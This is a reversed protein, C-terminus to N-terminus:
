LGPSHLSNSNAREITRVGRASASGSTGPSQTRTRPFRESQYHPQATSNAVVSETQQEADPNRTSSSSDVYLKGGILTAVAVMAAFLWRSSFAWPRLRRNRLPALEVQTSNNSITQESSERTIWRTLEVLNAFRALENALEDASALRDEPRKKITRQILQHLDTPIQHRAQELWQPESLTAARLKSVLNPHTSDPFPAEGSLLFVLACGLSYLDSQPTCKRADAAQEPAIYDVTGIIQGTATLDSCLHQHHAVGFDLVKVTGCRELLLNSPKVDRHIFGKSHALALGLASQRIVECAAGMPMPGFRAVWASLDDGDLLETVCYHLGNEIGADVANILNPHRLQGVARVENLFRQGSEPNHSVTNAIFKIAFPKGLHRHTAAYVQGMGGGGIRLGLDYQLLHLGSLDARHLDAKCVMTASVKRNFETPSSLHVASTVRGSHELARTDALASDSTSLKM